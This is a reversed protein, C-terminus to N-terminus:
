WKRIGLKKTIYDKEQQKLDQGDVREIILYHKYYIGNHEEPESVIDNDDWSEWKHYNETTTCLDELTNFEWPGKEHEPESYPGEEGFGEVKAQAQSIVCEYGHWGTENPSERDYFTKKYDQNTLMIISSGVQLEHLAKQFKIMKVNGM